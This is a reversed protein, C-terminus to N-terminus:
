AETPIADSANLRADTALLARARAAPATDELEPCRDLLRALAAREPAGGGHHCIDVLATLEHWPAQQTRAEALARRAAADADATQGRRRAIAAQLLMLPPLYVREGYRQAVGFAEDLQEEAANWDGALLLAEVAYGLIESSGSIMGLAVNAEYAQRIRQFGARAKGSRAEVWGLYWECPPRGQALAAEDVFTAMDRALAAVRDINGLRVELIGDFWLAIARATPSALKRAQAHAEDMRARAQRVLGLHFLQVALMGLLMVLPVAVFGNDPLASVSDVAHLGPELRARAVGPRGQLMNVNGEVTCSVLLLVPDDTRSWLAAARQAIAFADAYEARQCVVFGLGDMVLGRLPHHPADALLAAARQYADKVEASVGSLHFAGAANLTWLTLELDNREEGAPAHDLLALGRQALSVCEAPSLLRLSSQAAQAYYRLATTPERAREFHMALEATAVAAGAARQRELAAGAKRHLQVRTASATREYLVQRFLAHKFAYPQELADHAHPAHPLALWVHERSLRDCTEAVWAADRGIVEGVTEAGFEIGCVAAASLLTRDETGLRAVYHDIIAALNEPVGVNELQARPAGGASDQAPQTLVDGLVSAVFLPVGSTREHLERVFAEDTALSASAQAVYDAVERESFTDLVIEDCLRHARLERRLPNLPHDLAVVEALRFSALWMFCARTRRRALYDLLQITSRDSWHLDETVLLLPRRETYQDLLEGMERLMREPGVGALQRRLAEREDPTSLWPLQLLWTPAVARLLDALGTDRRCLDALAELVPLYPEGTGYHEVCHGRAWAAGDLGGVFHEILTTKGIGPEGAVWVLARQGARASDWASELRALADARGVFATGHPGGRAGGGAMSAPQRPAAISSPVAIFRYGRRPVTEIVRPQRPDDGLATRLDSIATKLVSESVFQHGWVTDLLADKTLLVGPQRALACLVNFPTPSLALPKGGRLLSANAEDLEFEGFRARIPAAVIAPSRAV